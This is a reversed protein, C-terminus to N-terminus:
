IVNAHKVVRTLLTFVLMSIIANLEELEFLRPSSSSYSCVAERTKKDKTIKKKREKVRGWKGGREWAQLEGPSRLWKCLHHCPRQEPVVPLCCVAARQLSVIHSNIERCVPHTSFLCFFPLSPQVKSQKMVRDRPSFFPCRCCLPASCSAVSCNTSVSLLSSCSPPPSEM